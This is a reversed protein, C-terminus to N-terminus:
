VASLIHELVDNKVATSYAYNGNVSHVGMHFTWQEGQSGGCWFPSGCPLWLSM